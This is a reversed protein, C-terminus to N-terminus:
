KCLSDIQSNLSQWNKLRSKIQAIVSGLPHQGKRSETSNEQCSEQLFELGGLWQAWKYPRGQISEDFIQSQDYKYRTVPNPVFQGSDNPYLNVLLNKDANSLTSVLIINLTPLYEFKM